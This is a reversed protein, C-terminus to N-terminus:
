GPSLGPLLGLFAHVSVIIVEGYQKLALLRHDGTVLFKANGSVATALVLDDESHSAVGMVTRTLPTIVSKSRLTWLYRARQEASLRRSYYRQRLTRDLEGFIHESLVLTFREQEWEKMFQVPASTTSTHSSGSALINTDATVRIEM